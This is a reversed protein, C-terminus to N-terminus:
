ILVHLAPSGVPSFGDALSTLLGLGYLSVDDLFSAPSFCPAWPPMVVVLSSHLFGLQGFATCVSCWDLGCVTSPVHRRPLICLRAGAPPSAALSVRAVEGVMQNVIIIVEENFYFFFYCKM